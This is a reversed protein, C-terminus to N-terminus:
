LIVSSPINVIRDELWEANSLDGSFCDKYMDLRNMMTWAPRTMVGKENTYALPFCKKRRFGEIFRYEVM